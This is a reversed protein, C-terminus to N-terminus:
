LRNREMVENVGWYSRWCTNTKAWDLAITIHDCYRSVHGERANPNSITIHGNEKYYQTEASTLGSASVAGGISLATLTTLILKKVLFIRFKNNSICM